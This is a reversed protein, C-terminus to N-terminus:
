SALDIRLHINVWKRRLDSLTDVDIPIGISEMVAVAKTYRGRELAQDLDLNTVLKQFLAPLPAVDSECYRLLSVREQETWPGGREALKRM